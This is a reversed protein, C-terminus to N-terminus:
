SKRFTRRLAGFAVLGSAMLLMSAPEPVPTLTINGPHVAIAVQDTHGYGQHGQGFSFRWVNPLGSGDTPILGYRTNSWYVSEGLNDFPGTNQLGYGPQPSTGDFYHFSKNGLTTYYLHAMESATSGAYATDTASINYGSDTSGDFRVDYNYTSGNLPLVQPLRWEDFVQGNMSVELATAWTLQPEWFDYGKTYDLWTIDLDSDYILKETYTVGGTNFTGYGVVVLSAQAYGVIIIALAIATLLAVKKM